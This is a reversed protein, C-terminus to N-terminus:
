VQCISAMLNSLQQQVQQDSSYASPQAPPVSGMAAGLGAAASRDQGLLSPHLSGVDPMFPPAHLNAAAAAAAAAAAPTNLQLKRVAEQAQALHAAMAMQLVPNAGAAAALHPALGAGALPGYPGLAAPGFPGQHAAAGLAGFPAPLASSAKPDLVGLMSPNAAMGASGSIGGFAGGLMNAAAASHLAATPTAPGAAALPGGVNPPTLWWLMKNIQDAATQGDRCRRNYQQQQDQPLSPVIAAAVKDMALCRVPVARLDMNCTPCSQKSNMGDQQLRKLLCDGCFLHSCTLVLSHAFPGCCLGCTLHEKIDDVALCAASSSVQLLSLQM